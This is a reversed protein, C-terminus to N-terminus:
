QPEKTARYAKIASVSALGREYSEDSGEMTEVIDSCEALEVAAILADLEAATLYLARDASPGIGQDERHKRAGKLKELM